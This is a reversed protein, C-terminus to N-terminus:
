VYIQQKGVAPRSQLPHRPRRQLDFPLEEARASVISHLPWEMYPQVCVDIINKTLLHFIYSIDWIYGMYIGYIYIGHSRNEIAMKPTHIPIYGLQHLNDREIAM